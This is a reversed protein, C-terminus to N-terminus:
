KVLKWQYEVGFWMYGDKSNGSLSWSKSTFDVKLTIDLATSHSNIHYESVNWTGNLPRIRTSDNSWFFSSTCNFSQDTYLTLWQKHVLSSSDPLMAYTLEWIGNYYPRLKEPSVSNGCGDGMFFIGCFVICVRIINHFINNSFFKKNM